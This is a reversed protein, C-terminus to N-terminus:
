KQCDFYILEALLHHAAVGPGVMAGDILGHTPLMPICPIERCPSQIQTFAVCLNKEMCPLCMTPPHRRDWGTLPTTSDFDLGSVSFPRQVLCARSLRSDFTYTQSVPGLDLKLRATSRVFTATM